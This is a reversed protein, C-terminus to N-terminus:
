KEGKDGLGFLQDLQERAAETDASNSSQGPTAADDSKGAPMGFLAELEAKAKDAERHDAATYADPRPQFYDCFNAREKDRVEDARQEDCDGNSRPDYSKCLRCVHLDARCAECEALRSLPLPLGDLAAGCKWCVLKESLDRSSRSM